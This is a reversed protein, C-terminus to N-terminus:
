RFLQTVSWLLFLGYVCGFFLPFSIARHGWWQRRQRFAWNPLFEKPDILQNEIPQQLEHLRYLNTIVKDKKWESHQEIGRLQWEWLANQGSFRGLVIAMQFSLLLGFVCLLMILATFHLALSERSVLLGIVAVFVSNATLYASLMTHYNRVGSTWLALLHTYTSDLDFERQMTMITNGATM